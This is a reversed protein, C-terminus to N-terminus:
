SLYSPIDSSVTKKELSPFQVTSKMYLLPAGLSWMEEEFVQSTKKNMARKKTWCASWCELAESTVHCVIFCLTACLACCFLTSWECRRTICHGGRREAHLGLKIALTVAALKESCCWFWFRSIKLPWVLGASQKRGLKLQGVMVHGPSRTPRHSQLMKSAVSWWMHMTEATCRLRRLAPVIQHSSPIDQSKKCVYLRVYM